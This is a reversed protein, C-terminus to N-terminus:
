DIQEVAYLACENGHLLDMEVGIGPNCSVIPKSSDVSPWLGFEDALWLAPAAARV